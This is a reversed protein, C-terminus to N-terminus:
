KALKQGSSLGVMRAASRLKVKTALGLRHIARLAM